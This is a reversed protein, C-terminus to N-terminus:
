PDAGETGGVAGMVLLFLPSARITKRVRVSRYTGVTRGLSKFAIQGGPLGRGSPSSAILVQQDAWFLSQLSPGHKRSMPPLSPAGADGSSRRGPRRPCNSRRRRAFAGCKEAM